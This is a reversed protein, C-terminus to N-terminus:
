DSEKDKKHSEEDKIEKQRKGENRVRKMSTV